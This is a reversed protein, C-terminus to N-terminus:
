FVPHICRINIRETINTSRRITVTGNTYVQIVKFSRAKFNLKRTIDTTSVFVQSGAVYTHLTHTKKTNNRLTSRLNRDRIYYWNTIYTANIIM